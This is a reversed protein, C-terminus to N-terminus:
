FLFISNTTYSDTRDNQFVRYVLKSFFFYYTVSIFTDVNETKVKVAPTTFQRYIISHM